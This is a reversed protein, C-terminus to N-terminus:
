IKGPVQYWYVAVFLPTTAPQKKALLSALLRSLGVVKEDFPPALWCWMWGGGM